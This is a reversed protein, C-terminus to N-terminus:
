KVPAGDIFRRQISLVKAEKTEVNILTLESVDEEVTSNAKPQTKREFTQVQFATKPIRDGVGVFYTRNGDNIFFRTHRPNKADIDYSMFRLNTSAPKSEEKPEAHLGANLLLAILLLLRANM